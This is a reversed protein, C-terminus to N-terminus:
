MNPIAFHGLEFILPTGFFTEAQGGLAFDAKGAGVEIMHQATPRLFHLPCIPASLDHRCAIGLDHLPM